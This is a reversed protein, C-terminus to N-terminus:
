LLRLLSIFVSDLGWLVLATVVVAVVVILSTQMTEQRTPWVVKRMEARSAKSFSWLRQGAATHYVIAVIIGALVIGAAARLAWAVSGYYGNAVVGGIVLLGVLIWKISDARSQTEAVKSNSGGKPSM